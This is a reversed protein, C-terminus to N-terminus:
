TPSYKLFDTAADFPIEPATVVGSTAAVQQTQARPRTGHLAIAIAAAIAACSVIWRKM